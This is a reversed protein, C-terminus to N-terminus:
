RSDNNSTSKQLINQCEITNTSKSHEGVAIQTLEDGCPESEDSDEEYEAFGKKSNAKENTRTVTNSNFKDKSVHKKGKDEVFGSYFPKFNTRAKITTKEGAVDIVNLRYGKTSRFDEESSSEDVYEEFKSSM